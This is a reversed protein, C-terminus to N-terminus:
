IQTMFFWKIKSLLQPMTQSRSIPTVLQNWAVFSTAGRLHRSGDYLLLLWPPQKFASRLRWLAIPVSTQYNGLSHQVV